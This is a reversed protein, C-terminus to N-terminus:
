HERLYTWAKKLSKKLRFKERLDADLAAWGTKDDVFYAFGSKHRLAGAQGIYVLAGPNHLRAPLSGAVYYGEKTAIYEKFAPNVFILTVAIVAMAPKM